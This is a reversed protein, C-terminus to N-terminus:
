PNLLSIKYQVGNLTIVLFQGSISGAVNSELNAGDLKLDSSVLNIAGSNATINVASKSTIDVTGTGSSTTSSIALNGSSTNVSNGNM